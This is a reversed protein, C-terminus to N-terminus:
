SLYTLAIFAAPSLSQWEANVLETLRCLVSSLLVVVILPSAGWTRQSATTYLLPALPLIM